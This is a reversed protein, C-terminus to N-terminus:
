NYLMGVKNKNNLKACAICTIIKIKVNLALIGICLHEHAIRTNPM